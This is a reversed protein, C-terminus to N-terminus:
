LRPSAWRSRLGGFMMSRPGPGVLVPRAFRTSMTMPSKPMASDMPLSRFSGNPGGPSMAGSHSCAVGSRLRKCRRRKIDPGESHGKQIQELTGCCLRASWAKPAGREPAMAILRVVYVEDLAAQPAGLRKAAYKLTGMCHHSCARDRCIRVLRAALLVLAAPWQRVSASCTCHDALRAFSLFPFCTWSPWSPSPLVRLVFLCRIGCIFPFHQHPLAACHCSRIM